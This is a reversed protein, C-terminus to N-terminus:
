DSKKDRAVPWTMQVIGFDQEIPVTPLRQIKVFGKIKEIGIQIGVPQGIQYLHREQHKKRCWNGFLDKETQVYQKEGAAKAKQTSLDIGTGNKQAGQPNQKGPIM